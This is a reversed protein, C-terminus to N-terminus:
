KTLTVSTVEFDSNISGNVPNVVLQIFDLASLSLVKENDIHIADWTKPMFLPYSNPLMFSSGRHFSALPIEIKRWVDTLQAASSTYCTGDAMIFNLSLTYASDKSSRAQIIVTKFKDLQAAFPKVNESVNLQIGFPGITKEQYTVHVSLSTEDSQSGNKFDVTYRRSQDYQPFVLLRSM